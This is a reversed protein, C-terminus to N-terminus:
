NYYDFLIKLHTADNLSLKNTKIYESIEDSNHPFVSLLKKRSGPLERVTEGDLHYFVTKKVLRTDRNGMDLAVNYTPERVQISTNSLLTVPGESLVEFFGRVHSNDELKYD